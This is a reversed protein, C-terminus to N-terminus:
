KSGSKKVAGGSQAQKNRTRNNNNKGEATKENNNAEGEAGMAMQGYLEDFASNIVEAMEEAKERPVNRLESIASAQDILRAQLQAVLNNTLTADDAVTMESLRWSFEPEEFGATTFVKELFTNMAENFNTRKTIITHIERSNNLTAESATKDGSGGGKNDLYNIGTNYYIQQLLSTMGHILDQINLSTPIATISEDSNKSNIFYGIEDTTKKELTKKRDKIEAQPSQMVVYSLNLNVERRFRKMYNNFEIILNEVPKWDPDDSHAYNKFLIFPITETKYKDKWNYVELAKYQDPLKFTKDGSILVNSDYYRERYVKGDPLWSEREILVQQDSQGKEKLFWIALLDQHYEMKFNLLQDPASVFARYEGNKLIDYGMAVRGHLSLNFLCIDVIRMFRTQKKFKKWFEMLKEDKTEFNDGRGMLLKTFLRAIQKPFDIYSSLSEIPKHKGIVTQPFGEALTRFNSVLAIEGSAM